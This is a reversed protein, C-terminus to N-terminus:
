SSELPLLESSLSSGGLVVSLDAYGDWVETRM